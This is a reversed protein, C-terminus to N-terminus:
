LDACNDPQNTNCHNDMNHIGDCWESGSFMTHLTKKLKVYVHKLGHVSLGYYLHLCFLSMYGAVHM